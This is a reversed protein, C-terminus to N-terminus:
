KVKLIIVGLENILKVSRGFKLRTVEEQTLEHIIEKM